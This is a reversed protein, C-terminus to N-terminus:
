WVLVIRFSYFFLFLFIWVQQEVHSQLFANARIWFFWFLPDYNCIQIWCYLLSWCLWICGILVIYSYTHRYSQIWYFIFGDYMWPFASNYFYMASNTLMIVMQDIYVALHFLDEKLFIVITFSFHPQQLMLRSSVEKLPLPGWIRLVLCM